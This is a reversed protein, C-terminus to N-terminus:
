KEQSMQQTDPTYIHKLFSFINCGKKINPFARLPWSKWFYFYRPVLVKNAQSDILSVTNLNM